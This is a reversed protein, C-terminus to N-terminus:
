ILFSDWFAVCLGIVIFIIIWARIYDKVDMVNKEASFYEKWSNFHKKSFFKSMVCRM